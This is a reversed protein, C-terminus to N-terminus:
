KPNTFVKKINDVITRKTMQAYVSETIKVSSHGLANAITKLDVGRNILMCAFSHRALHSHLSINLNFYDGLVKLYMNYKQNSILPLQYDYKILIEKTIDLLPIISQVNTKKRNILIIDDQIMEKKFSMLDVYAMGTFCQLIFIDRIQEIRADNIEKEYMMMITNYDVVEYEMKENSIVLKFPSTKIIGEDVAMALIKKFMKLEKNTTNLNLHKLCYNKFEEVFFPTIDILKIDILKKEKLFSEVRKKNNLYKYYSTYNIINNNYKDQYLKNHKDYLKLLTYDDEEVKGKYYNIFTSLTLKNQKLLELEISHCKKIIVDLYDNIDKDGKVKQKTVDFKTTEVQRDLTIITREKNIIVSLEIPSKGNKRAKSERCLFKIKM